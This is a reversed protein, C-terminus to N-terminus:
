VENLIRCVRKFRDFVKQYESVAEEKPVTSQGSRCAKTLEEYSEWTGTGYFALAAAGLSAAGRVNQTRQMKKDFINAYIELWLPSCAGGGVVTLADASLPIRATLTEFALRLECSIGELISRAVQEKTTGLTMGVLGGRLNKGVDVDGAGAMTPCFTVGNAGIPAKAAFLDVERYPKEQTMPKWLNRIMWELSTGASNIGAGPTYLGKICHPFTYVGSGFSLATQDSCGAIWASSGLSAYLEGSHICGAGLCMCSNDVSGLVVSVHDTLGWSSAIDNRLLGLVEHPEMMEPFKDLDVQAALAYEELYKEGSLSYIGSGGANCRDTALKGTMILNVYDKTGLFAKANNYVEPLHKKIWMIKFVSYLKPSFGCGTTYYWDEYCVKGFFQEAEEAARADSWIPVWELLLKGKEDVPVVGLSHGSTSIGVIDERDTRGALLKKAATDVCEWWVQPSQERRIGDENCRTEYDVVTEALCNTQEDWLSAKVSGTGIDFAIVKKM